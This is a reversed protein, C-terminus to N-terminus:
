LRQAYTHTHSHTHTHTHAHTYAHAHTYVGEDWCVQRQMRDFHTMQRASGSALTAAQVSVVGLRGGVRDLAIVAESGSAHTVVLPWSSLRLKLYGHVDLVSAHVTVEAESEFATCYVGAYSSIAGFDQAPSSQTYGGCPHITDRLTGTM